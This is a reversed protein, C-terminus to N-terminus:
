NSAEKANLYLRTHDIIAPDSLIGLAERVSKQEPLTIVHGLVSWVVGCLVDEPTQVPPEPMPVALRVFSMASFSKFWQNNYPSGFSVQIEKNDGCIDVIVCENDSTDVLTDGVMLSSAFTHVTRVM